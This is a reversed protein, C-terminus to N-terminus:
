GVLTVADEGFKRDDGFRMGEDLSWGGLSVVVGFFTPDCDDSVDSHPLRVQSHGGSVKGVGVAKLFGFGLESFFVM